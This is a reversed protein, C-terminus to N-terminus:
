DKEDFKALSKLLKEHEKSVTKPMKLRLDVFLDGRVSPNQIAPMGQGKIRVRSGASTRPPVKVSIETGFLDLSVTGGVVLIHYPVDARGILMRDQRSFNPDRDVNVVVFLDGGDAAEGALRIQAGDDIGPPIKVAVDKVSDVNYGRGQCSECANRSVSGRGGCHSCSSQLRIHGNGVIVFGRGGCPQCPEWSSSGTGKCPDCPTHKETQVAKDCGAFADRLSIRVRVRSGGPGRKQNGFVHDFINDFVDDVSNRSRFSFSPAQNGYFDYQRRKDESGILEWAATAEKFKAAAEQQNGPNRDPHHKAALTRYARAIEDQTAKRDVGLVQYPDM